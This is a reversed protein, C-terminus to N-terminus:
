NSFSSSFSVALPYLLELTNNFSFSEYFLKKSAQEFNLVVTEIRGQAKACNVNLIDLVEQCKITVIYSNILNM